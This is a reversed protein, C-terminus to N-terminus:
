ASSLCPQGVNETKAESRLLVRVMQGWAVTCLHVSACIYSIFLEYLCVTCACSCLRAHYDVLLRYFQEQTHLTHLWKFTVLRPPPKCPPLDLSIIKWPSWNIQRPQNELGQKTHQLPLPPNPVTLDWWCLTKENWDQLKKRFIFVWQQLHVMVSWDM